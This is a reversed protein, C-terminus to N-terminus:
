MNICWVILFYVNNQLYIVFIFVTGYGHHDQSVTHSILLIVDCTLDSLDCM